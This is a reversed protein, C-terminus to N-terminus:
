KRPRRKPRSEPKATLPDEPWAHRPYRGRLEKRVQPWTNAWFSALDQTVQAPRQNPALLHLVVPVRGGAVSPTEALGFLQQMRAALVPAKGAEYTLRRSTGDPLTMQPPALAGLRQVLHHGLVGKLLPLLAVKQTDSFRRQGSCIMEILPTVEGPETLESLTPLGLSPDAQALWRVRGLFAAVDRDLNLAALPKAAVAVALVAEVAAVDREKGPPHEALVLDLYTTARTQVVAERTADFRTRLGRETPLDSQDLAVAINIRHEAREGRPAGSLGVALILEADRVASRRDLVAGAGGALKFRDSGARRLAVRDPFGTMLLRALTADDARWDEGARGLTQEAVRVLQDRVQRVRAVGRRDVPLGRPDELADMRLALDSDTMVDPPERFIDRESALAVAAAAARLHGAEHGAVVVRALRPPLPLRVLTQGLPTIGAEDLAGLRQLLLEAAALTSPDPAEFWGFTAPDAGWARIELATRALDVRRLEPVQAAPMRRHRSETWLRRCWGPGTRGARGARQDASAVSIPGLELRELGVAADFRPVRALGSDVVARVGEITVSTEAINTALVVKRGQSPAIARDQDAGSLQGHLPLVEVGPLVGLADATRRIEGVGPLFALVHGEGTEALAKRIASACRLPVPRDDVRPDYHVEVPFTRGESEVVPCSLFAAVPGPDLTASMVVVVLDPNVEARIERLLALGLDAHLSREHFEDLVVCGVGELFPDAQLRRTLLGETLVEIRTKPGVRREFRVSYGVEGGVVGGREAAIRRASARAAVRRPQLLLLTGDGALGADLLAPPVRTTKGAGPPAVLVVAGHARVAQLVEPLVADIPLQSLHPM